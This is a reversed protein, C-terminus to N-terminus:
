FGLWNKPPEIVVTKAGSQLQQLLMIATAKVTPDSSKAMETLAALRATEAVTYDRSLSRQAEVYIQYDNTTACGALLTTCILFVIKM